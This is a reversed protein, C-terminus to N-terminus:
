RAFRSKYAMIPKEFAHFSAFALVTVIVYVLASALLTAALNSSTVDALWKVPIRHFAPSLVGDILYMGYSYRGIFVFPASGLLRLARSAPDGVVCFLVIGSSLIGLASFGVTQVEYDESALGHTRLVVGALLLGGVGTLWVAIRRSRVVSATRVLLALLSGMALADLRSTTFSYVVEPSVGRALMWVRALPSAVVLAIAIGMLGRRSCALVLLPWVVYFQEEVALSWTHDLSLWDANFCWGGHRLIQVNGLYTWLWGQDGLVRQVTPSTPFILPGVILTLFLVGYYLPFIRLSRRAYFNRFYRPADRTDLLIGTILFGSLVFFLQVGAWGSASFTAYVRDLIGRTPLRTIGGHLVVLSVAIARLGDLAVVHRASPRELSPASAATAETM